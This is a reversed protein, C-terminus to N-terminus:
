ATRKPNKKGARKRKVVLGYSPGVLRQEGKNNNNTAPLTANLVAMRKGEPYTLQKVCKVVDQLRQQLVKVEQKAAALERKENVCRASIPLIQLLIDRASPRMQPDPHVMRKILDTMETSLSPFSPFKGVRIEHWEDGNKPLPGGGAAEYLTLGLAFIDAKALHSYDDRLLEKALYRCDGERVNIAENLKTVHGLDGIKYVIEEVEDNDENINDHETLLFRNQRHLFINGPKIDMHALKRAHIYRLGQAVHELLKRLSEEDLPGNRIQEELSGGNCYENQMFVHGKEVWNSYNQVIHPHQLVAHAYIENHVHRENATPKLGKKVAYQVGNIVNVCLYVCGYEGVGIVDGELFEKEYRCNEFDSLRPRIASRSESSSEIDSIDSPSRVKLCSEEGAIEIDAQDFLSAALRRHPRKVRPRVEGYRFHTTRAAPSPTAFPNSIDALSTHTWQPPAPAPLPSPSLLSTSACTGDFGFLAARAAPDHVTRSLRFPATRARPTGGGTCSTPNPTSTGTLRSLAFPRPSEVLKMSRVRRYPPSAPSTILGLSKNVKFSRDNPPTMPRDEGSTVDSSAIDFVNPPTRPPGDLSGDSEDHFESFALKPPRFKTRSFDEDEVGDM